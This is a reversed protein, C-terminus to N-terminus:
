HTYSRSARRQEWRRGRHQKEQTAELTQLREVLQRTGEEKQALTRKTKTLEGLLFARQPSQPKSFEGLSLHAM